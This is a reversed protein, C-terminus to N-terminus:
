LRLCRLLRHHHLVGYGGFHMSEEEDGHARGERKWM